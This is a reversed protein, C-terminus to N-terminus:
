YYRWRPRYPAVLHWRGDPGIVWHPRARPTRYAWRPPRPPPPYATFGPDDHVWYAGPRYANPVNAGSRGAGADPLPQDNPDAEDFVGPDDVDAEPEAPPDITAYRSPEDAHEDVHAQLADPRPPAATTRMRGSKASKAAPVPELRAVQVRGTPAAVPPAADDDTTGHGRVPKAMKAAPGNSAMVPMEPGPSCSVYGTQVVSLPVADPRGRSLAM